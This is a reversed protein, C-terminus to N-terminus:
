EHHETGRNLLKEIREWALVKLLKADDIGSQAQEYLSQAELVDVYGVLGQAYRGQMLKLTKQASGEIAQQTQLMHNSRNVDQVADFLAQELLDRSRDYEQQTLAHDIRAKQLQSEKKGGDYLPISGVVGVFSSDYGSLSEDWGYQAVAEITGYRSGKAADIGLQASEIGYSLGGLKPNRTILQPRLSEFEVTEPISQFRTNLSGEIIEVNENIGLLLSLLYEKKRRESELTRLAEEAGYRSAAFRSEDAETKLGSRYLAHARKLQEDYFRVSAQTSRIRNQLSDITYYLQKVQEALEQASEEKRHGFTKQNIKAAQYKARLGGGDWLLYKASLDTHLADSERTSFVGNQPMIFTKNPYYSANLNLQPLLDAGSGKTESASREFGLQAIKLDPNSELAKQVAQEVSLPEGIASSLLVLFLVISRKM